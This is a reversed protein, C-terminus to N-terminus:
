KHYTENSIIKFCRYIQELIIVRALMHNFTMKSLSIRIDARKLVDESLGLSGGIIIAISSKGRQVLGKLLEAMEESSVANGRVDLVVVTENEALASLIRKGEAELIRQKEAAGEKGKPREDDVQRIELKCYRSLRKIYEDCAQKHWQERLKGVCIIKINM